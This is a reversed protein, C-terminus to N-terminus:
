KLDECEKIVNVLDKRVEDLLEILIVRNKCFVFKMEEDVNGIFYFNLEYGNYIKFGM